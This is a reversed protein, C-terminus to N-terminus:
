QLEGVTKKFTEGREEYNTFCDFSACAPSLLVCEGEKALMSSIKIAFTFDTTVSLNEYGVKIASKWMNFRSAGTLVVHKVLSSSIEEFLKDYNEGKESGGLILVTPSKMSKIANITSATNTSKSDNYYKVGNIENILEIRHAVGKFESLGREIVQNEVGLIKCVAVAFLANYINHEGQLNVKSVDMVKEDNYYIIDDKVYAGIVREKLSVWVTKAKNETIFSRVEIDDYNLVSYESEKQNKLIRKKLFSYTQMDFHRELHDPSLNLVCAIHPCFASVSELQFSSVETVCVTDKEIELIKSTVPVGINGLLMSKRKSKNLIADILSVTTTKGNTGTVAVIPPTFSLFAFELEGIIRKGLSKAKVAVEHNIPVGPSIIVVDISNLTEQDIPVPSVTAGLFTLEKIAETIKPSSQEEYLLCKGGNNIVHKGAFYGSKSVGLILFKQTLIDM